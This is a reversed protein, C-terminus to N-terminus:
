RRKHLVLFKLHQYFIVLFDYYNEDVKERGTSGETKSVNQKEQNM